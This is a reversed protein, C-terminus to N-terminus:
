EVGLDFQHQEQTSEKWKLVWNVFDLLSKCRDLTDKHVRREWRSSPITWQACYKSTQGTRMLENCAEDWDTPSVCVSESLRVRRGPSADDLIKFYKLFKRVSSNFKLLLFFIFISKFTGETTVCLQRRKCWISLSVRKSDLWQLAENDVGNCPKPFFSVTLRKQM